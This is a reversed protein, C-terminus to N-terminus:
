GLDSEAISMFHDDCKAMIHKKNVQPTSLEFRSLTEMKPAYIADQGFVHPQELSKPSNHAPKGWSNM